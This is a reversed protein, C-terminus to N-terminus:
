SEDEKLMISIQEIIHESLSRFKINIEAQMNNELVLFYISAIVAYIEALTEKMLITVKRPEKKMNWAKIVFINALRSSKRASEFHENKDVGPITLKLNLIGKALKFTDLYLECDNLNNPFYKDIQM